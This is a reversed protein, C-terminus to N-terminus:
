HNLSFEACNLLVWFVDGLASRPDKGAGANEVYKGFRRAEVPTPKRSLTALFLAEICGATDLTRDSWVAKVTASKARTADAIFDGNMLMLAQQISRQNETAPQDPSVFRALFAERASTRPAEGEPPPTAAPEKYRTAVALSDFLQEATLGKVAMHAFLRAPADAPARRGAVDSTFQYARSATLARLLFRTDFRHAVFARALEDLLEPHSPPNDPRFDDVPDVLGVGFLQAWLRNVAARAFFPNGPATVWEALTTRAGVNYRWRPESEDLFRAEASALGGPIKIDRRDFVERIGGGGDPAARQLGAFFAAYGWFHQRTWSGAPHNHCQACEIRVGLFLRATSAALNEPKADKALYFALPTPAPTGSPEPDRAMRPRVRESGFPVTLLERVMKDYPVNQGVQKRLWDNFGNLQGQVENNTAAEPVLLDRWVNVFHEVHAPSELLKQVLRARKDPTKDDPFARAEELTPIRGALDLYVRRLFEADGALPAPDIGAVKWGKLLHDDIRRALEKEDLVDGAYLPSAGLLTGVGLALLGAVHRLM